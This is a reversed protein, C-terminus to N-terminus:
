LSVRILQGDKITQLAENVKDMLPALDRYRNSKAELLIIGIAVDRLNQQHPIGQDMTLLVDFTAEAVQLLESNKKGRWGCQGVTLAEIDPAFRTALKRPMNEDLLVRM